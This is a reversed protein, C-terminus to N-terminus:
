VMMTILIMLIKKKKKYLGETYEKWRKKIEEAEILDKNNRDKIIGMKPHCAGKINGIKRFFNRTKGKKNNGEIEKYQENLFAKKDRRAIRQFEANLETYSERERNSKVERREEALQLTEESLWKEKKYKKKKLIATNEKEQVINCVERWLEM